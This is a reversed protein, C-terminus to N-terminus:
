KIYKLVTERDSFPVISGAVNMGVESGKGTIVVVDGHGAMLLAKEIAHDRNIIIEYDVNKEKGNDFYGKEIDAIIEYPDDFYPDENTLITYDVYGSAIQGMPRRKQVDRGGGCAGFVAILKGAYLPRITGYINKLAVPDVAYDIIVDFGRKSKIKEMRGPTGPYEHIARAINTLSIGMQNAVATAALINYGQIEGILQSKVLQREDKYSVVISLADAHARVDQGLYREDIHPNTKISMGFGIKKEAPFRLFDNAYESDINVFISKRLVHAAMGSIAKKQFRALQRFLLQKAKKYREFGGHQEIHEPSLNTFVAYDFDVGKLRNSYLAWSSAELVVVQCDQRVMEKLKQQLLFYGLTTNKTKNIEEKAGIKIAATSVLGTRIGNNQLVWHIMHATSTKGNTGTVGVVLMKRAPFRYVLASGYAWM